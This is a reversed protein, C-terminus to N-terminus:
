QKTESISMHAGNEEADFTTNCSYPAGDVTKM